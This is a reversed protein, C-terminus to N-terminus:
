HLLTITSSWRRYSVTAQNDCTGDGFDITRANGSAPTVEITGDVLWRCDMRRVLASTITSSYNVGARSTGNSSGTIHFVDDTVGATGHSAYSTSDGDVWEFTKNCSWTTTEGQPNTVQGNTVVVSFVPNGASNAGQQTIVKTGSIAHGNVNYNSTTITTVSGADRWPATFIMTIVGSRTRGDRGVCGTTGFDVTVTDPFSHRQATHTVTACGSRLDSDDGEGVHNTNKYIDQFAEEGMSNDISFSWDQNDRQCASFVSTAAIAGVWVLKMSKM